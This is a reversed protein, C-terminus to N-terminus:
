GRRRSNHASGPSPADRPPVLWHASDHQGAEWINGTETGLLQELDTGAMEAALNLTHAELAARLRHLCQQRAYVRSQGGSGVCQGDTGLRATGHVPTGRRRTSIVSAVNITLARLVATPDIEAVPGLPTVTAANNV